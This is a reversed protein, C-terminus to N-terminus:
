TFRNNPEVARPDSRHQESGHKYSLVGSVWQITDQLSVVPRYAVNRASMIKREYVDLSGEGVEERPRSLILLLDGKRPVSTFYAGLTLCQKGTGEQLREVQKWIRTESGQALLGGSFM